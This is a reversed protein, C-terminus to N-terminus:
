DDTVESLCISCLNSNVASSQDPLKHDCTKALKNYKSIVQLQEHVSTTYRIELLCKVYEKGIEKIQKDTM